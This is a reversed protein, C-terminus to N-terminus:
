FKDFYLDMETKTSPRKPYLLSSTVRLQPDTIATKPRPITTPYKESEIRAMEEEKEKMRKAASNYYRSPGLAPQAPLVYNKVPFPAPRIVPTQATRRPYNPSRTKATRARSRRTSTAERTKSVPHPRPAVNLQKKVERDLIKFEDDIEILQERKEDACRSFTNCSNELSQLFSHM